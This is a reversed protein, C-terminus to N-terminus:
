LSIYLDKALFLDSKGRNLFSTNEAYDPQRYAQFSLCTIKQSFSPSPTPDNHPLTFLPFRRLYMQHFVANLGHRAATV